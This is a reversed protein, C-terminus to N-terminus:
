THETNMYITCKQMLNPVNRLRLSQWGLIEQARASFGASEEVSTWVGAVREPPELCTRCLNVAHKIESPM